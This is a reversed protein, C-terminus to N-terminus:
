AWTFRQSIPPTNSLERSFAKRHLLVLPHASFTEFSIAELLHLHVADRVSSGRDRVRQLSNKRPSPTATKSPPTLGHNRIAERVSKGRERMAEVELRDGSKQSRPTESVVESPESMGRARVEQPSLVKPWKKVALPSRSRSRTNPSSGETLEENINLSKPSPQNPGRPSLTLNQGSSTEHSEENRGCDRCTDRFLCLAM